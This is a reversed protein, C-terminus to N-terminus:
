LWESLTMGLPLLEKNPFRKEGNLNMLFPRVDSQQSRIRGNASHATFASSFFDRWILEPDVNIALDSRVMATTGLCVNDQSINPLPAKFLPTESDPCSKGKVAILNIKVNNKNLTYRAILGPLPIDVIEQKKDKWNVQFIIQQIQPPRWYVVTSVYDTAILSPHVLAVRNGKHERFVNVMDTVNIPREQVGGAEDEITMTPQEFKHLRIVISNISM